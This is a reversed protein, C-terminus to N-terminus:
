DEFIDSTVHELTTLRRELAAFDMGTITDGFWQSPPENSTIYIKRPKFPTFGGKIPVDMEYRDLVRLFFGFPIEGRFDDFLVVPQGCYGDFWVPGSGRKAGGGPQCYVYVDEPAHLHWVVRTKGTGTPGWLVSVTPVGRPGATRTLVRYERFARRYQVWQSFHQEAIDLDTAGAHIAQRIADLDTRRGRRPQSIAGTEWIDDGKKCYEAAQAATGKRAEIHTGRPFRRKVWAFRKKKSYEIYGQLHPTGTDPAIEKGFICYSADTDKWDEAHVKIDTEDDFSYNNVTFCYFKSQRPM